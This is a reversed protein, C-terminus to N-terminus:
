QVLKKGNQQAAELQTVLNQNVQYAGLGLFGKKGNQALEILDAFTADVSNKLLTEKFYVEALAENVEQRSKLALAFDDITPNSKNTPADLWVVDM